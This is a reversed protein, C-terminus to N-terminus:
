ETKYMNKAFLKKLDNILNSQKKKQRPTFIPIIRKKITIHAPPPPAKDGDIQMYVKKKSNLYIEKGKYYVIGPVQEIKNLLVGAFLRFTDKILGKKFLFINLLGDDISTDKDIVFKGGYFRSNSIIVLYGEDIIDQDIINITIKHPRYIIISKIASFIYAIPGIIKKTNLNVNHVALADIGSSCMLLFPITNIFGIDIKKINGEIITNIAKIPNFPIKLDLALVNVTGFPIIGIPIPTKTIGEVVERITGDGGFVIIFDVLKAYNSAIITADGPKKTFIKEYKINYKSLRVEILPLYFNLFIRKGAKPNIILITKKGKNKPNEIENKFNKFPLNKKKFIM